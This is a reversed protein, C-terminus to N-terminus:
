KPLSQIGYQIPKKYCLSFLHSIVQVGGITYLMGNMYIMEAGFTSTPKECLNFRFCYLIEMANFELIRSEFRVM